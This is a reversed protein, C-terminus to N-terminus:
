YEIKRGFIVGNKVMIEYHYFSKLLTLKIRTLEVTEENEIITWM